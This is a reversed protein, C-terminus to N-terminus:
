KYGWVQGQKWQMLNEELKNKQRSSPLLGKTVCGVGVDRVDTDAWFRYNTRFLKSTILM